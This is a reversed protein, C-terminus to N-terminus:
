RQRRLERAVPRRRHQTGTSGARPRRRRIPVRALAPDLGALLARTRALPAASRRPRPRGPRRATGSRLSFGSDRSDVRRRHAGVQAPQDVPDGGVGQRRGALHHRHRQADDAGSVARAGGTPQAGIAGCSRAPTASSAAGSSITGTPAARTCRRERQGRGPLRRRRQRVAHRARRGLQVRAPTIRPM